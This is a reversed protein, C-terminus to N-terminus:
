NQTLSNTIKKFKKELSFRNRDSIIGILIKKNIDKENFNIWIREFYIYFSLVLGIILLTCGFYVSGVGPDKVVQFGSVYVTGTDKPTRYNTQYLAIGKYILPENIEVTKSLVLNGNDIVSLHSKYDKIQPEWYTNLRVLFGEDTFEQIEPYGWFFWGSAKLIDDKFLSLKVAPNSKWKFRKKSILHDDINYDLSFEEVKIEYKYRDLYFKDGVFIEHRIIKNSETDKIKLEVKRPYYEIEFKNLYVGFGFIEDKKTKRCYFNEKTEGEFIEVFGKFGLVASIISGIFIIIISIHTITPGLKGIKGKEGYLGKETEFVKFKNKKLIEKLIEKKGRFVFEENFRMGERIFNDEAILKPSIILKWVPPFREITCIILNICLLFLLFIYWWSYYINSFNLNNFFFAGINIIQYDLTKKSFGELQYYVIKSNNQPILTGLISVLALIILLSLTFKVKCFLDWTKKFINKIYDHTENEAAFFAM